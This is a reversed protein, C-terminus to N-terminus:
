RYRVFRDRFNKVDRGPVLTQVLACIAKTFATWTLAATVRPRRMSWNRDRQYLAVRNPTLRSPTLRGTNRFICDSRKRRHDGLPLDVHHRNGKPFVSPHRERDRDRPERPRRIDRLSRHLEVLSHRDARPFPQHWVASIYTSCGQSGHILPICGRSRSFVICAGLPACLRCANRTSAFPRPAVRPTVTIDTM